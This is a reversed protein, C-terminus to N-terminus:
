WECFLKMLKWLENSDAIFFCFHCCRELVLLIRVLLHCLGSEICCDRVVLCVLSHM